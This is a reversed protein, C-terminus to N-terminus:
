RREIVPRTLCRALEAGRSVVYTPVGAADLAGLLVGNSPAPGFSSADIVVATSRVGRLSLDRCLNVWGSEGTATILILNDRRGFRQLEALLLEQISQGRNARTVALLELLRMVQRPGRDALLRQGQTLLGVARDRLLFHRGLSAAVSVAYEETSEDELGVQVLRDLDLILWLDSFPDREFEKVMLSGRRASSPWHIRNFSDGPQYDRVSSVNSTVYHVREGSLSGGTLEGPLRGSAPLEEARPFVVLTTPETLRRERRFLGFPDSGALWIPGLTFQGRRRFRTRVVRARRGLPALSLVESLSHDPHDGADLVELWPRPLWNLNEIEAREDYTAGVESRIVAPRPRIYIGRVAAISWLYSLGITLLLAYALTHLLGWGQASGLVILVLALALLGLTPRM